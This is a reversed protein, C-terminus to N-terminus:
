DKFIIYTLRLTLPNILPISHVSFDTKFKTEPITIPKAQAEYDFHCEM